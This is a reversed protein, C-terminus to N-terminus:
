HLFLPSLFYMRGAQLKPLDLGLDVKFARSESQGFMGFLDALDNRQRYEILNAQDKIKGLKKAKGMADDFTGLQDVFGLEFAEKGSLVRGDAYDAWDAALAQGDKNSEHARKRGDAVVSKFKAFTEDILRQVMAREEPTISGPERSGSMMDKFKGSKYVEPVLGVKDMLGRYNFGHMIVGISGTITLENAVIWECPASVYYGGSAALSGMSVVVPKGADSRFESIARAIDDSAMVEGGPSDVKLIVAKVKKDDAARDLQAKVIDVLSHGGRSGLDGSIIGEIPVVAIKESADNDELVVEELRPGGSRQRTGSIGSLHTFSKFLSSLNTMVSVGLLLFLIIAIIMWGRSKRPPAPPPPVIIPPPLQIAPPATFPPPTNSEM